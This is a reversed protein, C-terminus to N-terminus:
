VCVEVLSKGAQANKGKGKAKGNQADEAAPDAAAAAADQQNNQGGRAAILAGRLELARKSFDEALAERRGFNTIPIVVNETGAAVVPGTGVFPAPAASVLSATLLTLISISKM